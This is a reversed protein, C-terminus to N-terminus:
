RSGVWPLLKHIWSAAFGAGAAVLLLVWRAGRAQMMLDHLDTVKKHTDKHDDALHRVQVELAILRDRTDDAMM